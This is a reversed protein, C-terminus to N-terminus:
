NRLVDTSTRNSFFYLGVIPLLMVVLILVIKTYLNVKPM